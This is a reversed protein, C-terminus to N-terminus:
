FATRAMSAFSDIGGPLPQYDPKGGASISLAQNV